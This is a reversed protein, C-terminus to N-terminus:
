WLDRASVVRTSLFCSQMVCPYRGFFPICFGTIVSDLTIRLPFDSLVMFEECLRRIRDEQGHFLAAAIM